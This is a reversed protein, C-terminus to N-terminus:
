RIVQKAKQELYEARAESPQGSGDVAPQPVDWWQGYGPMLDEKDVEVQIM